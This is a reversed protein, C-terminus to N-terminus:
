CGQRVAMIRQFRMDIGCRHLDVMALVMLCVHIIKVFGDSTCFMFSFGQFFKYGNGAGDGRSYAVVSSAVPIM